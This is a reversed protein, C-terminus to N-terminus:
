FEHHRSQGNEFVPADTARWIPNLAAPEWKLHQLLLKGHEEEEEGEGGRSRGQESSPTFAKPPLYHKFLRLINEPRLQERHPSNLYGSGRSSM